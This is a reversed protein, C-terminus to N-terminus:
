AFCFCTIENKARGDYFFNPRCFFYVLVFIYFKRIGFDSVCTYMITSVCTYMITSVCTYMITSVCTYM